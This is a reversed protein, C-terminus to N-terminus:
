VMGRAIEACELCVHYKGKKLLWAPLSLTEAIQVNTDHCSDCEGRRDRSQYWTAPKLATEAAHGVLKFDEPIGSAQVCSECLLLDSGITKDEYFNGDHAHCSWCTYKHRSEPQRDHPDGYKRCAACSTSQDTNWRQENFKLCSLKVLQECVDCYGSPEGATPTQMKRVMVEDPAFRRGTSPSEEQEQFTSHWLRTM